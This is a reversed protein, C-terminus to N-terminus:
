VAHVFLGRYPNAFPIDDDFDSGSGVNTAGVPTPKRAQPVKDKLMAVMKPLQEPATKSALIEGATLESTADFPAILNFKYGTSGDRKTYEEKQLLVGIPKNTLDPFGEASEAHGDHRTVQIPAPNIARLRLCAMVAHLVKLSPLGQGDANVTWLHLFDTKLGENSVFSLEVGETGKDSRIIEARTFKGKYKGTESIYNSVGAAAASKADFNYARSM